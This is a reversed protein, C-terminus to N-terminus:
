GIAVKQDDTEITTSGYMHRIDDMGFKKKSRKRYTGAHWYWAKKKPAWRFRLEKLREKIPKTDGTIWIWRGIIEVTLGPCTALQDLITVLDDAKEGSEEEQKTKDITEFLRKYEANIAKMVLDDGGLDPHHEKVLDRYRKKLDQLCRCSSFYHDRM